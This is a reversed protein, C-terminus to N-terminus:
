LYISKYRLLKSIDILGGYMGRQSSLGLALTNHRSFQPPRNVFVQPTQVQQCFQRSQDYSNTVIVSAPGSNHQNIWAIAATLSQSHRFAVVNGMLSTHWDTEQAPRLESFEECLMDDGRVSYKDQILLNILRAVQSHNTEAPILVKEIAVVRDPCGKASALIMGQVQEPSSSSDWFLYCNGISGPIAPAKTDELVQQMFRSRGYPIVLDVGGRIGITDGNTVDPSLVQITALPLQAMQLAEVLVTAIARGSHTTEHGGRIILANGTKLCLAAALLALTPLGEYFFAVVGVPLAYTYHTGSAMGTSTLPDALALVRELWQVAEQFRENTLRLWSLLVASVALDRSTELDLTNEELIETQAQKLGQILHRLASQRQAYTALALQESALRAQHLIEHGKDAPSLNDM